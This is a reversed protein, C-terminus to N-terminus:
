KTKSKRKYLSVSLLVLLLIVRGISILSTFTLGNSLTYGINKWLFPVSTWYPNFILVLSLWTAWGFFLLYHKKCIVMTLGVLFVIYAISFLIYHIFVAIVSIILSLALLAIGYIKSNNKREKLSVENAGLQQGKLLEDVSVNFIRSLKVLNDIDPSTVGREWKSVAQRSVNMKLALDEQSLNILKRNIVIRENLNM